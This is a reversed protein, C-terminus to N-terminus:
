TRSSPLDRSRDVDDPQEVPADLLDLVFWLVVDPATLGKTLFITEGLRLREREAANVEAASYVVLPIRRLQGDRRLDAM